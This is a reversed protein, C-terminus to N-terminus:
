FFFLILFFVLINVFEQVLKLGAQHHKLERIKKEDESKGLIQERKRVDQEMKTIVGRVEDLSNRCEVTLRISEANKGERQLIDDRRIVVQSPGPFFTFTFSKCSFPVFFFPCVGRIRELREMTRKKEYNFRDAKQKALEEKTMCLDILKSLRRDLCDLSKMAKKLQASGGAETKSKFM